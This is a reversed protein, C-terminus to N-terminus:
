KEQELQEVKRVLSQYDRKLTQYDAQLQEVAPPNVITITQDDTCGRIVGLAALGFFIAGGLEGAAKVIYKGLVHDETHTNEVM